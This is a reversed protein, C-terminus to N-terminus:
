VSLNTPYFDDRLDEEQIFHLSNEIQLTGLVNKFDFIPKNYQLYWESGFTIDNIYKIKNDLKSTIQESERLHKSIKVDSIQFSQLYDKTKSLFLESKIKLGLIDEDLQKNAALKNSCNLDTQMLNLCKEENENIMKFMKSKTENMSALNEQYTKEIENRILQFHSKMQETHKKSDTHLQSLKDQINNLNNQLKIVSQNRYIQSPSETLINNIQQCDNFGNLPLVHNEKCYKCNYLFVRKGVFYREYFTDENQYNAWNLKVDNLHNLACISCLIKGCPLCKPEKLRNKCDSCKLKESIQNEQYFM